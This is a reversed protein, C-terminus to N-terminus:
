SISPWIRAIEISAATADKMRLATAKPAEIIKKGFVDLVMCCKFDVSAGHATSKMHEILMAGVYEGSDKTHVGAKGINLKLGGVIAAGSKSKARVILDPAISVSLEGLMLHQPAHPALSMSFDDFAISPIQEIFYELAEINSKVMREDFESTTSKARLESIKNQIEQTNPKGSALSQQIIRKAEDYRIVQFTPPIKADRLIRERRSAKNTALYEGLKNVSLRPEQRIKQKYDSM